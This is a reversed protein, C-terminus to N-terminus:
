LLVTDRGLWHDPRVDAGDKGPQALTQHGENVGGGRDDLGRSGRGGEEGGGRRAEGQHKDGAAASYQLKVAEVRVSVVPEEAGDPVMAEDDGDDDKAAREQAVLVSISSAKTGIFSAAESCVQQEVMSLLSTSAMHARLQLPLDPINLFFLLPAPVLPSPSSPSAPFAPSPPAGGSSDNAHGGSGDGEDWLRSLERRLFERVRPHSMVFVPAAAAPGGAALAAPAAGAAGLTSDPSSSKALTGNPSWAMGVAAAAATRVELLQRLLPVMKLLLRPNNCVPNAADIDFHSINAFHELCSDPYPRVHLAIYYPMSTTINGGRGDGSTSEEAVAGVEEKLKRQGERERMKELATTLFSQATSTILSSKKMRLSVQHYSRGCPSSDWKFGRYSSRAKPVVRRYNYLAVWRHGTAARSLWSLGGTSCSFGHNQEIRVGRADLLEAQHAKELASELGSSPSISLLVDARGSQFWGYQQVAEERNIVHVLPALAKRDFVMDFPIVSAANHRSQHQHQQQHTSEGASGARKSIEDGEADLELLGRQAKGGPKLSLGKAAALESSHPWFGLAVVTWNLVAALALAEKLALIQNSLGFPLLPILFPGIAPSSGDVYAQQSNVPQSTNPTLHM